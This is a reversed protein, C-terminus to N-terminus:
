KRCLKEYEDLNEINKLVYVDGEGYIGKMRYTEM